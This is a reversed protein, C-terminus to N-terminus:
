ERRKHCLAILAEVTAPDVNLFELGARYRPGTKPAIEFSAWVIVANVRIVRGEDTLSVRVRQNPKLVPTSIVQAGATSLDIVQAQNGDILAAQHGTMKVRPARRTGRRDIAATSPHARVPAEADPRVYPTYSADHGVLRIEIGSLDPDSDIRGLLAAGRPTAAFLREVAVVEPRRTLVTELAALADLEAFPVIEDADGSLREALARLIEGPAVLVMCSAAM